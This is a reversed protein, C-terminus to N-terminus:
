NLGDLGDSGGGGCVCVCVHGLRVQLAMVLLRPDEQSVTLFSRIISWLREEFKGMTQKVQLCRSSLCHTDCGSM